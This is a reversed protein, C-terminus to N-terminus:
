FLAASWLQRNVVRGTGGRCRRCIASAACRTSPSSAGIWCAGDGAPRPQGRGGATGRHGVPRVRRGPQPYGLKPLLARNVQEELFSAGGAGRHQALLAARIGARQRVHRARLRRPAAQPRRLHPQGRGPELASGPHLRHGPPVPGPDERGAGGLGRGAPPRQRSGQYRQEWRAYFDELEADNMEQNTLLLFDPRASNRLLHRNFNLGEHGMDASLRAPALPSLGALEELPNFYRLWVVEDPTYAAQEVPDGTCSAACTAAATPSSPWATPDCRGCNPSATTAASSPGSPRAGCACTLDRHRAVPRRPHVVPQRAGAPAGGPPVVEVPVRREGKAQPEVLEGHAANGREGHAAGRQEAQAQRVASESRYVRLLPRTVAESRLRVASYVSPSTAMYRGYEPRAWGETGAGIGADGSMRLGDFSAAAARNARQVVVGPGRGDEDKRSFARLMKGIGVMM